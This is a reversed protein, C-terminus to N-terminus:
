DIWFRNRCCFLRIVNYWYFNISFTSQKQKAVYFPVKQNKTSILTLYIIYTGLNENAPVDEYRLMGPPSPLPKRDLGNVLNCFDDSLTDSYEFVHHACETTGNFFASTHKGHQYM